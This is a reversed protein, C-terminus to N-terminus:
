LKSNKKELLQKVKSPLMYIQRIKELYANPLSPQALVYEKWAINEEALGHDIAIMDVRKETRIVYSKSFIYRLGLIMIDVNDMIEYDVIHAIEHGFWGKLAKRPLLHTPIVSDNIMMGSMMQVKYRRKSRTKMLSASYPKAQMFSNRMNDFFVFDIEVTDLEPYHELVELIVSVLENPIRKNLTDTYNEQPFNNASLNFTGAIIFILFSYKKIWTMHTHLYIIGVFSIFLLGCM